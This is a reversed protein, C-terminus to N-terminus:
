FAAVLLHTDAVSVWFPTSFTSSDLLSISFMVLTPSLRTSTQVSM